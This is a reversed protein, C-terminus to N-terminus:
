YLVEGQLDSSMELVDVDKDVISSNKVVLPLDAVVSHLVGVHGVVESVKEQAIEEEGQDLAGFFSSYDVYRRRPM